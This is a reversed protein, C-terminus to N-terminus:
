LFIQPHLTNPCLHSFRLPVFASKHSAHSKRELWKLFHCFDAFCPPPCLWFPFLPKCVSNLSHLSCLWTSLLSGSSTCISILHKSDSPHKADTPVQFSSFVCLLVKNLVCVTERERVYLYVCVCVCVGQTGTSKQKDSHSTYLAKNGVIQREPSNISM